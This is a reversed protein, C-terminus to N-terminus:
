RARKNLIKRSLRLNTLSYKQRSDSLMSSADHWLKEKDVRSGDRKDVLEKLERKCGKLFSLLSVIVKASWRFPSAKKGM